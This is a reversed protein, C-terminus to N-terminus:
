IARNKFINKKKFFSKRIRNKKRSLCKKLKKYPNFIKGKPKRSQRRKNKPNSKQM